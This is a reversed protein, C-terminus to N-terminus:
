NPATPWQVAWPFGAQKTIDRLAQRYVAWAVKNISSPSDALQTWDCSALKADRIKREFKAAADLDAQQEAQTKQVVVWPLVWQGNVLEPQQAQDLRETRSNIEPTQPTQVEVCEFGQSALDTSPFIQAMDFDIGYNTNNNDAIFESVGYPFSVVTGNKIKAYM